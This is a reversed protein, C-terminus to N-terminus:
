ESFFCSKSRKRYFALLPLLRWTYLPNKGEKTDAKGTEEPNTQITGSNKGTLIFDIM